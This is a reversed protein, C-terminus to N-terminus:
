ANDNTIMALVHSDWWESKASIRWKLGSSAHSFRARSNKMAMSGVGLETRLSYPSSGVGHGLMRCAALM